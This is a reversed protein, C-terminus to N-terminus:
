IKSKPNQIVTSALDLIWFGFHTEDRDDDDDDDAQHNERLAHVHNRLVLPVRDRAQASKLAHGSGTHDEDRWEDVM